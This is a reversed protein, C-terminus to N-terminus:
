QIPVPLNSTTRSLNSATEELVATIRDRLIRLYQGMHWRQLKLWEQESVLLTDFKPGGVFLDLKYYRGELQDHEEIMRTEHESFIM